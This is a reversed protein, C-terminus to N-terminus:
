QSIFIIWKCSNMVCNHLHFPISSKFLASYEGEPDPTMLVEVETSLSTFFDKLFFLADQFLYLLWYKNCNQFVDRSTRVSELTHKLRTNGM